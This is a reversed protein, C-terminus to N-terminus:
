YIERQFPPHFPSPSALRVFGFSYVVLASLAHALLGLGFVDLFLVTTILDWVFYGLALAQVLGAAGTYGWIREQWDMGKREEDTYMVWLALVNILTSQILSVVHADWNVKKSRSHSPYYKPFFRKSLVPSVVVHVFTYFGAALIVEHVHLPLTPMSYKDAWPQVAKSLAPLPPLFFPDRM